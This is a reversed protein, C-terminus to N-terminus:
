EVEKYFLEEYSEKVEYSPEVKDIPLALLTPRHSKINSCYLIEDKDGEHILYLNKYEDIFYYKGNVFKM